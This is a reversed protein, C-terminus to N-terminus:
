LKLIIEDAIVLTKIQRPSLYDTVFTNNIFGKMANQLVNMRNGAEVAVMLLNKFQQQDFM